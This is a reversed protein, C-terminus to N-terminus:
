ERCASAGRTRDAHEPHTAEARPERRPTGGSRTRSRRGCPWSATSAVGGRAHARPTRMGGARRSRRLILRDAGPPTAEVFALPAARRCRSRTGSRYPCLVSRLSPPVVHARSVERGLAVQAVQVLCGLRSGGHGAGFCAGAPRGPQAGSDVPGASRRRLLRRRVASISTPNDLPRTTDADQPRQPDAPRGPRTSRGCRAPCRRCSSSWRRRRCGCSSAACRGPRPTWCRPMPRRRTCMLGSSRCVAQM